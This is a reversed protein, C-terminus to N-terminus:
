KPPAPELVNIRLGKSYSMLRDTFGDAVGTTRSDNGNHIFAFTLLSGQPTDAFGALANVSNLTGTKARVRGTSATALMRKRLTGTKGGLPLAESLVPDEAARTVLALALSCTMRDGTDLGSGDLMVLSSTDFGQRTLSEKIADVGAATTGQGKAVLGIEKTVLEATTNDSDILMESLVKTMPVSDFTAIEVSGAPPRGTSAGGGVATGRAVLITRLTAAFLVPPDGAKRNTTSDNPTETYGTSGDNVILASLPAVTGGVQYRTPWTAVWRTTDYRSDDGVIGGRIERVGADALTDALVSFDEYFQDPDDFATKYGPTVLLPDGGGVAYLDGDIVGNKAPKAALFRTTFTSDPGLIEVAALATALKLTSAPAFADTPTHSYIVRGDQVVLACSSGVVKNRYQDIATSLDGDARQGQLTGPFRRASLVPTAPTLAGVSPASGDSSQAESSTAGFMFASMALAVVVTLAVFRRPVMLTLRLARRRIVGVM